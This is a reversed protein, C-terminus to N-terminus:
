GWCKSGSARVWAYGLNMGEECHGQLARLRPAKARLVAGAVTRVAVLRAAGRWSREQAARQRHQVPSPANEVNPPNQRPPCQHPDTSLTHPARTSTQQSPQQRQRSPNAWALPDM